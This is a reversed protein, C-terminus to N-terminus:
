KVKQRRFSLELPTQWSRKIDNNCFLSLFCTFGVPNLQFLFGFCYSNCLLKGDLAGHAWLISWLSGMRNVGCTRVKEKDRIYVGSITDWM